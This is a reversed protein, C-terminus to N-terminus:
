QLTKTLFDIQMNCISSDPCSISRGLDEGWPLTLPAAQVSSRSVVNLLRRGGKAARAPFALSDVEENSRPVCRPPGPALVVRSLPRILASRRPRATLSAAIAARTTTSAIRSFSKVIAM